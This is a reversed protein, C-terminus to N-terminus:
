VIFYEGKDFFFNASVHIERKIFSLSISLFPITNKAKRTFRLDLYNKYTKYNRSGPKISFYFQWFHDSISLVSLRWLPQTRCTCCERLHYPDGSLQTKNQMQMVPGGPDRNKLSCSGSDRRTFHGFRADREFNCDRIENERKM